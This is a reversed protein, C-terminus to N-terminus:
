LLLKDAQNPFLFEVGYINAAELETRITDVPSIGKLPPTKIHTILVKLGKLAKKPEKPNVLAALKRLEDIIFKPNLHGFLEHDDTHDTFSCELFIGHLKNKQILPAVRKWVTEMRKKPELADPATDGFYLIYSGRHQILFATSIYSEPHSLPFTEVQMNLEPINLMKGPKLRTYQYLHLRPEVGENGFNPWIKRNFLDDRIFDITPDLGYIPKPKDIPSNMVLGAVHDLHAHSILYGKVHDRLIEGELLWPSEPDISIDSFHGKEAAKQIGSLLTGADISIFKSSDIAGVLYGSCDSESPGGRSGLVIVKFAEEAFLLFPCLLFLPILKSM